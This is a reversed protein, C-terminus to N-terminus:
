LSQILNNSVGYIETLDPFGTNFAIHDAGPESDQYFLPSDLPVDTCGMVSEMGYVEPFSAALPTIPTVAHAFYQGTAAHGGQDQLSNTAGSQPHRYLEIKQEEQKARKRRASIKAARGGRAGSRQRQPAPHDSKMSKKHNGQKRYRTTSEVRGSRIAEETLRWYNVSKNGAATEEKIAEFGANMSLNHRISNQWGKCKQDKGKSTNKEFWSYIGQLPLKKGPASILARYILASYPENVSDDDMDISSVDVDDGDRAGQSAVTLPGAVSQLEVSLHSSTSLAPSTPAVVHERQRKNAGSPFVLHSNEDRIFDTSTPYYGQDLFTDLRDFSQLCPEPRTLSNTFSQTSSPSNMYGDGNNSFDGCADTALFNTEGPSELVSRQVAGSQWFDADDLLPLSIQEPLQSALDPTTWTHSTSYLDFDRLASTTLPQGLHVLSASTTQLFPYGGTELVDQYQLSYSAPYDMEDDREIVEGKRLSLDPERIILGPHRQMAM